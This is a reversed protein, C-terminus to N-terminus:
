LIKFIEYGVSIEVSQSALQMVSQRIGKSLHLEIIAFVM